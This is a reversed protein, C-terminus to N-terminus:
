CGRDWVYFAVFRHVLVHQSPSQQVTYVARLPSCTSAAIQQPPFSCRTQTPRFPWPAPLFHDQRRFQIRLWHQTFFPGSKGLSTTKIFGVETRGIERLPPFQLTLANPAKLTQSKLQQQWQGPKYQNTYGKNSWLCVPSWSASRPHPGFSPFFFVYIIAFQSASTNLNGWLVFLTCCCFTM